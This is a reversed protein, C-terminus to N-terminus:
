SFIEEEKGEMKTKYNKIEEELKEKKIKEELILKEVRDFESINKQILQDKERSFQEKLM